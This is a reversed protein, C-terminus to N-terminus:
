PARSNDTSGRVPCPCTGLFAPYERRVHLAMDSLAHRLDESSTRDSGDSSLEERAFPESLGSALPALRPSKTPWFTKRIRGLVATTGSSGPQVPVLLESNQGTRSPRSDGATPMDAYPDSTPNPSLALTARESFVLTLGTAIVSLLLGSGVAVGILHGKRIGPPTRAPRSQRPLQRFRAADLHHRHHRSM